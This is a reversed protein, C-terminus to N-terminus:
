IWKPGAARHRRTCRAEPTVRRRQLYADLEDRSIRLARRAGAGVDVAPLEGAQILALVRSLRVRMLRAVEPPTLLPSAPM